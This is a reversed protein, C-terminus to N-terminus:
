QQSHPVGLRHCGERPVSDRSDVQRGETFGRLDVEAPQPRYLDPDPEVESEIRVQPFRLHRHTRRKRDDVSESAVTVPREDDDPQQPVLRAAGHHNVAECQIACQTKEDFVSTTLEAAHALESNKGPDLQRRRNGAFQRLLQERRARWDVTVDDHKADLGRM